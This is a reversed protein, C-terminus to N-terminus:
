LMLGLLIGLIVGSCVGLLIGWALVHRGASTAAIRAADREATLKEILAADTM